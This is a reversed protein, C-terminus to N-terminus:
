TYTRPDRRLDTEHLADAKPNVKPTLLQTYTKTGEAACTRDMRFMRMRVLRAASSHARCKIHIIVKM